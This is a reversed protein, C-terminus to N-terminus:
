ENRVIPKKACKQQQTMEIDNLIMTIVQFLSFSKHFLTQEFKKSRYNWVLFILINDEIEVDNRYKKTM